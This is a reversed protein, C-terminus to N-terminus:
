KVTKLVHTLQNAKALKFLSRGGTVGLLVAFVTRVKEQPLHIALEAGLLAGLVTGVMLGPLHLTRLNGLRHHKIAGLMSPVCLACLATGAVSAYPLKHYDSTMTLGTILTIGGGLGLCGNIFGMLGGGGLMFVYPKASHELPSGNSGLYHFNKMDVSSNLSSALQNVPDIFCSTTTSPQSQVSPHLYHDFELLAENVTTRISHHLDHIVQFLSKDQVTQKVVENIEEQQKQARFYVMPAMTLFLLALVLQLKKNDVRSAVKAGLGITLSAGLCLIAASPFHVCNNAAYTFSGTFSTMATCVVGSAAASKADYKLLLSSLPVLAAAGGVGSMSGICGAFLGIPLIPLWNDVTLLPSSTTSSSTTLTQHHSNIQSHDSEHQNIQIPQKEVLLEIAPQPTYTSYVQKVIASHRLLRQPIHTLSNLYSRHSHLHIFLHSPFSHVSLSRPLTLFLRQHHM